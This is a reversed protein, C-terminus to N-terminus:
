TASQQYLKVSSTDTLNGGARTWALYGIQGLKMYASDDFRFVELDMADRIAYKHLDGFAVTKANAAPLPMDNNIYVPCGLLRDPTASTMGEDYSPTWIPRGTTDKIKRVVRRHWQSLMWAPMEPGDPRTGANVAYTPDLAEVMAFLDDFTIGLINGATATVAVDAAVMLGTPQLTGTGTTFHQNQIRGIRQAARKLVLATIDISSDQVLEIPIAIVKSGFKATNIGRTGFSVDAPTATTNEALWEGTESRGDSTTLSLDNGTATTFVDAVRRMAGFDRLCDTFERSVVSQVAYGGQSSTTTSMTNRVLMAAEPAMDRLSKRLYLDLARKTTTMPGADCSRPADSFSRDADLDQLRQHATLMAEAHDTEEMLADYQARNATSWTRDGQEALMASAQRKRDRILGRLYQAKDSM